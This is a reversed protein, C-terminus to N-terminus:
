SASRLAAKLRDKSDSSLASDSTPVAALDHAHLLDHLIRIQELYRVCAECTFLHLRTVIREKFTLKRDISASFTPTITRCDPLRGALFLILQWKLKGGLTQDM